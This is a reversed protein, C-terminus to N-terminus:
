LYCPLRYEKPKTDLPDSYRYSDNSHLIYGVMWQRMGYVYRELLDAHKKMIPDEILEQAVREFEASLNNIYRISKDIAEELSLNSHYMHIRLMNWDTGVKMENDYSYIDNILVIHRGWLWKLKEVRPDHFLSTPLVADACLEVM